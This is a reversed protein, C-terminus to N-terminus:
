ARGFMMRLTPWAEASAVRVFKGRIAPNGEWTNWTLFASSWQPRHCIHFWLCSAWDLAVGNILNWHSIYGCLKIQLKILLERIGGHIWWDTPLDMVFCQYSAARIAKIKCMHALWVFRILLEHRKAIMGRALLSPRDLPLFHIRNHFCDPVRLPVWLPVRHHLIKLFSYLWFVHWSGRQM